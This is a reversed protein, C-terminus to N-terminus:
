PASAGRQLARPARLVLKGVHRGQAMHQLAIPAHRLDYATFPLPTLTGDSEYSRDAFAEASAILQPSPRSM